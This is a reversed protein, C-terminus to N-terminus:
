SVTEWDDRFRETLTGQTSSVIAAMLFGSLLPAAANPIFM